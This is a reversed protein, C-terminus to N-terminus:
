LGKHILVKQLTAAIAAFILFGPLSLFPNFNSFHLSAVHRTVPIVSPVYITQLALVRVKKESNVLKKRIRLLKLKIKTIKCRCRGRIATVNESSLKAQPHLVVYQFLSVTRKNKTVQVVM